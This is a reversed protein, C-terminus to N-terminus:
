RLGLFVATDVGDGGDITDDGAGGDITDDGGLGHLTDNGGLGPLLDIGATGDVVNADDNSMAVLQGRIVSIPFLATHINFYLPIDAGLTATEFMPAFNIISVTAPDTTEWRGSVTWSGDSNLVISLDDDDQEPHMQGFVVNGSAGRAAGHFHMGTADDDTTPTQAAGGSALGFDLGQIRISYSAAMAVPDYIFTGLGTATSGTPPFQSGDMAIRFATSM